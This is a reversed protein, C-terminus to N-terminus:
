WRITTDAVEYIYIPYTRSEGEQLTGEKYTSQDDKFFAGVSLRINYIGKSIYGEYESVSLCTITLDCDGVPFGSEHRGSWGGTLVSYATNEGKDKGCISMSFSDITRTALSIGASSNMKESSGDGGGGGGSVAVATGAGAAAVGVGAAVIATTSMGSGATVTGASTAAAASGGSSAMASASYIGAVMGFRVSSEVIDVSMSDSFGPVTEPATSLETYVAIDKESGVSSAEQWDPIGKEDNRNTQFIQTKLVQKNKNVVLFLYELTDTYKAPAPLIARYHNKKVNEMKVFVFDAEEKARFYCRVLETGKDDTVKTDLQIRKEPVFYDIPEHTIETTVSNNEQSFIPIPNFLFLGTFLVFACVVAFVQKGHLRNM